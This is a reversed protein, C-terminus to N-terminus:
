WGTFRLFHEFRENHIAVVKTNPYISVFRCAFGQIAEDISTFWNAGISGMLAAGRASTNYYGSAKVTGGLINAVLRRVREDRSGGGAIVYAEPITTETYQQLRDRAYRLSYICGEIGARILSSKDHVMSISSWGAIAAEGESDGQEQLGRAFPTFLPVDAAPISFALHYLQEWTLSWIKRMWDLTSGASYTAAMAYYSDDYPGLLTMIGFPPVNPRGDLIKCFQGGTGLTIVVTGPELLAGSGLHSAVTDARGLVVPISPPLDLERASERTLPGRIQAGGSIPPLLDRNLYIAQCFSDHWSAHDFDWLGTASADSPETAIVGTLRFGVWDKPQLIWRIDDLAQSNRQMLSFLISAALGPTLPNMLQPRFQSMIENLIPIYRRSDTEAWITPPEITRGHSDILVVGHMQGSLGIAEVALDKGALVQSTAIRIAQWWQYSTITLPTTTDISPKYTCAGSAVEKGSRDVASVKASSTGLDIGLVVPIRM